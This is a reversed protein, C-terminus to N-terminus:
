SATETQALRGLIRDLAQDFDQGLSLYSANSAAPLARVVLVASGPLSAVRERSLHRLRRKVLNRTVASGVAKSVVFGVQPEKVGADPDLHLVLTRTGARRGRRVVQAFLRSSTLRNARTLVPRGHRAVQREICSFASLRGPPQSGQSSAVGLHRPRRPYADASPFRADQSPPPQEAPVYAQERTQEGTDPTPRSKPRSGPRVATTAVGTRSAGGAWPERAPGVFRGPLHETSMRCRDVGTRGGLPVRGRLVRDFRTEPCGRRVTWLAPRSLRRDRHVVPQDVPIASTLTRSTRSERRDAEGLCDGAEGGRPPPAPFRSQGALVPVPRSAAPRNAWGQGMVTCWM